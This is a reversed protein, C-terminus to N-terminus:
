SMANGSPTMPAGTKGIKEFGVLPQEGGPLSRHEVFQSAGPSRALMADM